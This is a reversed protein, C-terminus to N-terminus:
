NDRMLLYNDAASCEQEERGKSGDFLLRWGFFREFGVIELLDRRFERVVDVFDAVSRVEALAGHRHQDLSQLLTHRIERLLFLLPHHTRSASIYALPFHIRLASIQIM